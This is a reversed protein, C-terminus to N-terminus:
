VLKDDHQLTDGTIHHAAPLSKQQFEGQDGGAEIRCYEGSPALARHVPSQNATAATPAGLNSNAAGNPRRRRSHVPFEVRSADPLTVVANDGTEQM